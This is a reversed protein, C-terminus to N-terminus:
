LGRKQLEPAFTEITLPDCAILWLAAVAGALPVLPHLAPFPLDILLQLARWGVVLAGILWLRHTVTLKTGSQRLRNEVTGWLDLPAGPYSVGQFQSNLSELEQLWQACSACSVLHRRADTHPDGAAPVAEGDLAAMLQLRVRECDTAPNV